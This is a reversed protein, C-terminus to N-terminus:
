MWVLPGVDWIKDELGVLIALVLGADRAEIAGSRPPMPRICWWRPAHPLDNAAEILIHHKSRAATTQDTV